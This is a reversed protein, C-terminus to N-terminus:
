QEEVFVVKLNFLGRIRNFISSFIVDSVFFPIIKEVIKQRNLLM